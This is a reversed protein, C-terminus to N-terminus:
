RAKPALADDIRKMAGRLEELNDQGLAAVLLDTVERSLANAELAVQRGRATLEAIIVRSDHEGPTRQVYGRKELRKLQHSITSQPLAMLRVIDGAPMPGNELLSVLLRSETLDIDWVKLKPNTMRLLHANIRHVLFSVRDRLPPTRPPMADTM